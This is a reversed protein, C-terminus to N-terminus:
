RLAPVDERRRTPVLRADLEAHQQAAGGVHLQVFYQLVHEGLRGLEMVAVQSLILKLLAATVPVKPGHVAILLQTHIPLSTPFM